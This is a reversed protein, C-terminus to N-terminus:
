GGRRWVPRWCNAEGFAPWEGGETGRGRKERGIQKVERGRAMM